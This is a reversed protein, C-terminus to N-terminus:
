QNTERILYYYLQMLTILITYEILILCINNTGFVLGYFKSSRHFIFHVLRLVHSIHFCTNALHTLMETFCKAGVLQLLQFLNLTLHHILHAYIKAEHLSISFLHLISKTENSFFIILFSLFILACNLTLKKINKLVM